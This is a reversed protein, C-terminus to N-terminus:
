VRSAYIWCRNKVLCSRGADGMKRGPGDGEPLFVMFSSFAHNDDFPSM